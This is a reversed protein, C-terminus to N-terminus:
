AIAASRALRRSRAAFVAALVVAIALLLVGCVIAAWYGYVVPGTPPLADVVGPLPGGGFHAGAPITAGPAATMTVKTLKAADLVAKYPDLVGFGVNQNYGGKPKDRTSMALAQEVLAPAMGPYLQKILAVTGAAYSAAAATGELGWGGAADQIFDGPGTLAVSNNGPFQDVSVIQGTASYGPSGGPLMISSVGIVGPMGAPFLYGGPGTGSDADPAVIVINRRIAARVAAALQISLGDGSWTEPDVEIVSAGHGAAYTIAKALIQQGANVSNSGYSAMDFAAAGPEAPGPEVRIGLIRVDPAIGQVIGPAGTIVTATLTGVSDALSGRPTFAYDPGEASRGALGPASTDVGDALVAVTVGQGTALGQVANIDSQFRSWGDSPVSYAPHATAGLAAPAAGVVIVGALAAALTLPLGRRATLM